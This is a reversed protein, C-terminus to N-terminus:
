MRVRVGFTFARGIVDYLVRNGLSSGVILYGPIAPPAKDFVNNVTLFLRLRANDMLDYNITADTYLVAPVHNESIDSAILTNDFKGPGIYREQVYLSARGVDVSTSFVGSWKPTSNVGIDGALKLVAAGTVQTDFKSLHNLLLRFNLQGDWNDSFSSLPTTYAAEFDIGRTKRNAVNFFPLNVRAVAGTADRVIFGCIETAGQACLNLEQQATLASIANKIDINYYDVSLSLGPIFKPQLVTGFVLTNAVEPLLATNGTNGTLIQSAANGRQPDTINASGQSAGQFLEGLSPARIDRSRTTRLRLGQVPEYVAGVKWTTVGGSTSYSTYRVAGNLTLSYAFPRDALLPANVEGFVEKVDYSGSSPQPNTREFGGLTNILAAPYGQIGAGTRIQQSRSDTIQVFKEKRYGAGAAVGLPGGPLDFLEGKISGEVVDQKVSVDQVATGVVYDKAAESPSGFGFINLPVCGDNPNSLTSRCVIRGNSLVADAARYLNDSQPDDRTLFLSDNAGHEYYVNYSFKDFHGKFGLVGRYTKSTGDLHPIALDPSTRGVTISNINQAAIQAAVSAPLFANDRFITFATGGVEFTPLSNYSVHSRGYNAEGFVTFADSVDLDFHLFADTRTQEPQLTLLLSPNYGGGGAMQTASVLTGYNFQQPVGGPGFTTGRLSTNTVLGGLAAISSYGNEVVIMRPNTPSQPNAATVGPNAVAVRGHAAWDRDGSFPVGDNHYQEISGVVHLRGGFFKTGGAVSFKYNGADNKDTIGGQATARLGELRTDLVFNVVGAVADSGYAASAGGTVIEVQRILAEPLLSIDVSGASSAAVVRRGDLLVLTRSTGLGRLNLYSAGNNGTTGTGQTQVGVSGKFVPLQTLAETLTRPAALQLQEISAVTVPTPAKTGDTALRSGTVVLDDTAPSAAATGAPTQAITDPDPTSQIAPAPQTQAAASGAVAFGALATGGVLLQRLARRADIRNAM